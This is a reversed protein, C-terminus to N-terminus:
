AKLPFILCLTTATRRPPTGVGSQDEMCIHLVHFAKLFFFFTRNMLGEVDCKLRSREVEGHDRQRVNSCM